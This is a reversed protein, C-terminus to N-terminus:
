PVSPTSSVNSLHWEVFLEPLHVNDPVPKNLPHFFLPAIESPNYHALGCGVPTVLFKLDQRTHAFDLFRKVHVWIDDVPLTKIHIDKTPIAYTQGALGEGKGTIAGWRLAQKAAGAGMIGARNSGFVFVEDPELHKIEYPSTNM